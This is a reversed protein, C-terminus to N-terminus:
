APNAATVGGTIVNFNGGWFDSTGAIYGGANSYTGALQNGWVSNDAGGTLDIYANSATTKGFTNGTITAQNFGVDIHGANSIFVNNQIVWRYAYGAASTIAYGTQDNFINGILQVNFVNETGVVQIANQGTGFRCGFIQAHSSDREANGSSANRPFAIGAASTPCDFLINQLRWGQQQLTLLPSSQSSPKWSAAFYGNNGTHADANRPSNGAGIITVDFIGAPATLNEVVNGVVFIVAGSDNNALIVDFARGMTQFASTSSRGSNGDLGSFTNVFYYKSFASSGGSLQPLPMGMSTLGNPFNTYGM